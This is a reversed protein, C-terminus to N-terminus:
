QWMYINKAKKLDKKQKKSKFSTFYYKKSLFTITVIHNVKQSVTQKISLIILIKKRASIRTTTRQLSFIILLFNLSFNRFTNTIYSM